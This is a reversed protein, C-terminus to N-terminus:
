DREREKKREKERREKNRDKVVGEALHYRREWEKAARVTPHEPGIKWWFFPFLKYKVETQYLGSLTITTRYRNGEAMWPTTVYYDTIYYKRYEKEEM